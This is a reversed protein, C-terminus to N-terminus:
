FWPHWTAEMLCLNKPSMAVEILELVGNAVNPAPRGSSDDPPLVPAASRVRELTRKINNAVLVKLMDNSM